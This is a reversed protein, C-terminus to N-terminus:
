PTYCPYLHLREIVPKDEIKKRSHGHYNRLTSVKPTDNLILLPSHAVYTTKKKQEDHDTYKVNMIPVVRLPRKIKFYDTDNKNHLAKREMHIAKEWDASDPHNRKSNVANELRTDWVNRHQSKSISTSHSWAYSVHTVNKPALLINRSFAKRVLDPVADKMTEFREDKTRGAHTQVYEDFEKKLINIIWIRDRIEKEHKTHAVICGPLRVSMLGVRSYNLKVKSLHAAYKAFALEGQFHEVIVQKEESGIDDKEPTPIVHVSTKQHFTAESLVETLLTIHTLINQYQHRIRSTVLDSM